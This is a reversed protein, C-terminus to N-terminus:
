ILHALGETNTANCEKGAAPQQAFVLGCKPTGSRANGLKRTGSSARERAQANNNNATGEGDPQQLGEATPTLANSENAHVRWTAHFARQGERGGRVGRQSEGARSASPWQPVVCTEAERRARSQQLSPTRNTEGTSPFGCLCTPQFKEGSMM